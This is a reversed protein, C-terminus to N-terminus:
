DWEVAAHPALEGRACHITERDIWQIIEVEEGEWM